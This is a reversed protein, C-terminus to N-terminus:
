QKDSTVPSALSKSPSSSHTTSPEASPREVWVGAFAHKGSESLNLLYLFNRKDFNLCRCLAFPFLCVAKIKAVDGGGRSRSRRTNFDNKKCFQGEDLGTVVTQSESGDSRM